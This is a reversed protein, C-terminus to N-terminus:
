KPRSTARLERVAGGLANALLGALVAHGAADPHGDLPYYLHEPSPLMRFEPLIDLYMGGNGTIESRLERDLHYPDFGASWEGLSIMAAQARNPVLTAVFPIHASNAREEIDTAYSDFKKVDAVWVTSLHARLFGTEGADSKNLLYSGVYQNQSQIEYLWHRLANGVVITGGYERIKELIANKLGDVPRDSSTPEAFSNKVYTFSAREIDLPTLVWLILDPKAALVNAFRLDSNRAFGYAMGEDYLEIKRGSQRSLERPLLAALSKEFPVREGMALSSGMMVIRYVGAPKPGYVSGSRFGAGDLRYEVLPSELSKESCVSNPIGRIGTAPEVLVLCNDLSTTSESFFRRAILEASVAVVSVVLLALLPLLIFDRRALKAGPAEASDADKPLTM